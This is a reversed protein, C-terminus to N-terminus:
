GKMVKAYELPTEITARATAAIIGGGVVRFQLGGTFPIEKKWFDMMVWFNTINIVMVM